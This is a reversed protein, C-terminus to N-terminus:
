EFLECLLDEEASVSENPGRPECLNHEYRHRAVTHAVTGFTVSGVHHVQINDLDISLTGDLGNLRDNLERDIVWGSPLAATRVEANPSPPPVAEWVRYDPHVGDSDQMQLQVQVVAGAPIEVRNVRSAHHFLVVNSAQHGAQVSPFIVGDLKAVNALYDAVAQTPLYETAEDLPMVARSMQHSLERLFNGRQMAAITAPDFISGGAAVSRLANLDLLRLPRAIQFPAVAVKSGVPPRVEALATSADMAGYFVAIGRANMRGAGALRSPPTGLHKWPAKLAEKLKDDEGAFVRARYLATISTEPGALVVVSAGSVTRLDAIGSFIQDLISAAVPSFFRTKTKLESVFLHWLMLFEGHGADTQTYHSDEAFACEEGMMTREHDYNRDELVSRIDGAIEESINAADAIAWLALEGEREWEYGIDPDNSMAYEMGDPETATQEYHNEFARECADALVEISFTTSSDTGCYDCM